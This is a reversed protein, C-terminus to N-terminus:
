FLTLSEIFLSMFLQKVYDRATILYNEIMKLTKYWYCIVKKTSIHVLKTYKNNSRQQQSVQNWRHSTWFLSSKYSRLRDVKKSDM